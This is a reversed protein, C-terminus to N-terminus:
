NVSATDSSGVSRRNRSRRFLRWTTPERQFSVWGSIRDTQNLALFSVVPSRCAGTEVPLRLLLDILLVGQQYSDEKMRGPTSGSALSATITM